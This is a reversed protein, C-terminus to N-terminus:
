KLAYRAQRRLENEAALDERHSPLTRHDRVAMVVHGRAEQDEFPRQPATVVITEFVVLVVVDDTGCDVARKRGAFARGNGVMSVVDMPELGLTLVGEDEVNM